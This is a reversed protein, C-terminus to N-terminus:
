MWRGISAMASPGASSFIYWALAGARCRGSPTYLVLLTAPLLLTFVRHLLWSSMQSAPAAPSLVHSLASTARVPSELPPTGM